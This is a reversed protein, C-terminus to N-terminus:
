FRESGKLQDYALSKIQNYTMRPVTLVDLEAVLIWDKSDVIKLKNVVVRVDHSDNVGLYTFICDELSKIFNSSDHEYFDNEPIGISLTLGLDKDPDELIKKIESVESEPICESLVEKYYQQVEKLYPSKAFYSRYRGDKCKRVPHIYQDNVSILKPNDLGFRIHHGQYKYTNVDNLAEKNITGDDNVLACDKLKISCEADIVNYSNYTCDSCYHPCDSCKM